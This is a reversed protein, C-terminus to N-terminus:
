DDEEDIASVQVTFANRLMRFVTSPILDAAEGFDATSFGHERAANIVASRYANTLRRKSEEKDIDQM